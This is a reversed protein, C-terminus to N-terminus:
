NNYILPDEAYESYNSSEVRRLGTQQKDMQLKIRNNKNITGNSETYEDDDLDSLCSSTFKEQRMQTALAKKISDSIGYMMAM